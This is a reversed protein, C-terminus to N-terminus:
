AAVKAHRVFKAPMLEDIWGNRKAGLFSGHSKKEWTSRCTFKKAESVVNEYVDWYGYPVSNNGPYLIDLWGNRVAARYAGCSGEMFQTRSPYKKSEKEVLEFNNWTFRRELWTYDKLWENNKATVYASGSNKRFDKLLTYKKAEQECLEYTWKTYEKKELWPFENEWGMRYILGVMDLHEKKFDLLTTYQKSTEILKNKSIGIGLTGISGGRCRNIMTWGDAQYREIEEQELEAGREVTIGAHLIKPTPIPIGTVVSYVNLSDNKKRRHEADRRELNVTRGVYAAHTEGFEYVYVVDGNKPLASNPCRKLWTFKKILGRNDARMYASPSRHRFSALTTYKRSEAEVEEDTMYMGNDHLTQRAADSSSMYNFEDSFVDLWGKGLAKYYVAQDKKVLETRSRCTSAINRCYDYDLNRPVIPKLFDSIWGNKMSVKYAGACKNKFEYRSKCGNALQKCVEYTYKSKM